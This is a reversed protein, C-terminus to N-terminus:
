VSRVEGLTRTASHMLVATYHTIYESRHATNPRCTATLLYHALATQESKAAVNPLYKWPHLLHTFIVICSSDYIQESVEVRVVILADFM